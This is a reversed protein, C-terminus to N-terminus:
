EGERRRLVMKLKKSLNSPRRPQLKLSTMCRREGSTMMLLPLAPSTSLCSATCGSPNNCLDNVSQVKHGHAKIPKKRRKLELVCDLHPNGTTEPLFEVLKDLISLMSAAHHAFCSSMGGKKRKGELERVDVKKAYEEFLKEPLPGPPQIIINLADALYVCLLPEDRHPYIHLDQSNRTKIRDVHPRLVFYFDTDNDRTEVLVFKDRSLIAIETSRGVLQRLVNNYLMFAFAEPSDDWLALTNLGKTETHTTAPRPTSLARGEDLATIFCGARLGNRMKRWGSDVLHYPITDTGHQFLLLEKFASYRNTLSNYSYKQGDKMKYYEVM